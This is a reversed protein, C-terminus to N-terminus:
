GHVQEACTWAEFPWELSEASCRETAFLRASDDGVHLGMNLSSWPSVQGGLRSTFGASLGENSEMWESLLFLSPGSRQIVRKFPEM